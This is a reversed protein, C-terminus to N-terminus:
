GRAQAMQREYEDLFEDQTIGYRSLVALMLGGVHQARDRRVRVPASIAARTEIGEPQVVV